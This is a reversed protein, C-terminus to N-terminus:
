REGDMGPQRFILLRNFVDERMQHVGEEPDQKWRLFKTKVRLKKDVEQKRCKWHAIAWPLRCAREGSNQQQMKTDTVLKTGTANLQVATLSPLDFDTNHM